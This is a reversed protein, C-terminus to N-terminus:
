NFVSQIKELNIEQLNPYIVDAEGLTNQDGIGITMFGANKAGQIGKISDEVVICDKVQCDIEKAAILFVEPDPKSKSTTNGDAIFDFQDYLGLKKLIIPANKSASGIALKMGSEKIETLLAPIGPLIEEENLEELLELYMENKAFAMKEKEPQSISKGALDLIYELSKMRSVGKLNENEEETLPYGLNHAIQKWATFHYKATDVIVGDLDFIFGTIM